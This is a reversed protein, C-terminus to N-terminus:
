KGARKRYINPKFEWAINRFFRHRLGKSKLSVGDVQMKIEKSAKAWNPKSRGKRDLISSYYHYIKDSKKFDFSSNKFKIYSNISNIADPDQPSARIARKWMPDSYNYMSFNLSHLAIDLENISKYGKSIAYKKRNELVKMIGVMEKLPPALVGAEGYATLTMAAFEQEKPNLHKFLSTYLGKRNIWTGKKNGSLVKKKISALCVSLQKYSENTIQDQLAQCGPLWKGHHETTVSTMTRVAVGSVKASNDPMLIGSNCHKFIPTNIKKSIESAVKILSTDEKPIWITIKKFKGNGIEKKAIVPLMPGGDYNDVDIKYQGNAIKSWVEGHDESFDIARKQNDEPGQNIVIHTAKTDRYDYQRAQNFYKATNFPVAISAGVMDKMVMSRNEEKRHFYVWGYKGKNQGSNVYIKVGVGYRKNNDYDLITLSDGANLAGIWNYDKRGFYSSKRLSTNKTITIKTPFKLKSTEAFTNTSLFLVVFILSFIKFINKM